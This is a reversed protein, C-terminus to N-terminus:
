HTTPLINIVCCSGAAGSMISRASALFRSPTGDTTNKPTAPAAGSVTIM